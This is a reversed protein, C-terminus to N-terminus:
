MNKTLYKQSISDAINWQDDITTDTSQISSVDTPCQIKPFLLLSTDTYKRATLSSTPPTLPPPPPSADLFSQIRKQKMWLLMVNATTMAVLLWAGFGDSFSGFSMTRDAGTAM